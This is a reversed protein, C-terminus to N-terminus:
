SEAREETKKKGIKQEGEGKGPTSAGRRGRRQHASQADFSTIAAEGAGSPICLATSPRNLVRLLVIQLLAHHPISGASTSAREERHRHFRHLLFSDRPEHADM